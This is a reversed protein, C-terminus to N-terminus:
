SIHLQKADKVKTSLMYISLPILPLYYLLVESIHSINLSSSLATLLPFHVCVIELM